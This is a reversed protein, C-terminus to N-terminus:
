QHGNISQMGPSISFSQSLFVLFFSWKKGDKVKLLTFNLADLNTQLFTFLTPTFLDIAACVM